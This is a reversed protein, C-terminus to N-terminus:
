GILRTTEDPNDPNNRQCCFCFVTSCDWGPLEQRYIASNPPDTCEEIFAFLDSKPFGHEYYHKITEYSDMIVAIFLSLVVYIFLGIFSYLYVRSYMWIFTNRTQLASFTVYMDDGNILSFLCESTTSLKRFKIHYPGLIVWGCFVFGFYMLVACIMFRIVNPFARKLTLILINYNKFFGVYRLVGLWGLLNGTGLMIACFDYNESTSQLHRTELQIKLSSGIITIFDNIVILIFWMNLFEMEDCWLLKRRFQNKFFDATEKRLNHARWISRLCLIFSMSSIFIVISDFITMWTKKKKEGGNFLVKGRCPRESINPNLLVLMQGDRNNNNFTINVNMLFCLPCRHPTELDLRVTHVKFKLNIQLLRDFDLSAKKEALYQKIDFVQTGNELSVKLIPFCSETVKSDYVFSGNPLVEGTIYNLKCMQITPVETENQHWYHYGGVSITDMKSYQDAAFNIHAYLDKVEYLAYVGSAPPYPLTEYAANWDKLFLHKLAITNREVYDVFSGREVGFIYLQVTVLIIKVIQILLKWPTRKKAKLKEIPDMFFFKLRRRMRDEMDPTYYSPMRKLTPHQRVHNKISEDDSIDGHNITGVMAAPEM